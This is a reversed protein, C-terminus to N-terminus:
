LYLFIRYLVFKEGAPGSSNRGYEDSKERWSPCVGRGLQALRMRMEPSVPMINFFIPHINTIKQIKAVIAM